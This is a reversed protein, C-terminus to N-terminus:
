HGRGQRGLYARHADVAGGIGHQRFDKDVHLDSLKLRDGDRVCWVYGIRRGDLRAEVDLVEDDVEFEVRSFDMRSNLGSVKRKEDGKSVPFLGEVDVFDVASVPSFRSPFPRLAANNPTLPSIGSEPWRTGIELGACDPVKSSVFAGMPSLAIFDKQRWCKGETQNPCSTWM